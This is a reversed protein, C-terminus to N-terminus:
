FQLDESTLGKANICDRCIYEFDDTIDSCESCIDAGCFECKFLTNDPAEFGCAPNKCNGMRESGTKETNKFLKEAVDRMDDPMDFVM